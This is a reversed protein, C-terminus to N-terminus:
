SYARRQFHQDQAAFWEYTQRIGTLLDIRPAWGIQSIRTVDICKRPTGDPKATNYAFTGEFGVVEAILEALERITLDTGTGVNIHLEDSYHELLFICASSLDDVHLFERRPSGTGWIEVSSIKNIKAQHIKILLAALVHSTEGDFNDNPGYLNTPMASIFDCGYERRYAEILKVGAIKAIAYWQNTPELPGTLLAEEDIPQAALRPYICTSGLFLLKEVNVRHAAHVINSAIALNDYLFAAPFRSNAVIGGVTGAAIIVVQPKERAMWLEVDQQRRLDVQSRDVTLLKVPRKKLQSMLTSGVLGKHGAVWITKGDLNYIRQAM